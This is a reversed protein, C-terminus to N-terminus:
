RTLHQGTLQDLPLDFFRGSPLLNLPAPLGQEILKLRECRRHDGECYYTRWVGLAAKTTFTQFMPCSGLKVCHAM